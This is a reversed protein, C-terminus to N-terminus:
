GRREPSTFATRSRNADEISDRPDLLQQARRVLYYGLTLAVIVGSLGLLLLGSSHEFDVQIVHRGVAIIAVILIVEVRVHHETFYTKLTELLELGLVVILIGAFSKQMAPLLAEISTIRKVEAVLNNGLLVFLNFTSVVVLVIVLVELATVVAFEIRPIIRQKFRVTTM